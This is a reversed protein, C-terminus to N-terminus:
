RVRFIPNLNVDVSKIVTLPKSFENDFRRPRDVTLWLTYRTHGYKGECSTPCSFPLSISFIYTHTGSPLVGAGRVMTSNDIYVQNARYNISRAEYRGPTSRSEAETWSM